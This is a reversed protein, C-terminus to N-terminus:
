GQRAIKKLRHDFRLSLELDTLKVAAEQHMRGFVVIGAFHWIVPECINDCNLGNPPQGYVLSCFM